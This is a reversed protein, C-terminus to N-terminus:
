RGVKLIQSWMPLNQRADKRMRAAASSRRVSDILELVALLLHSLALRDVGDGDVALSWGKGNVNQAFHM